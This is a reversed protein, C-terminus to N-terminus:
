VKRFILYACVGSDTRRFAARILRVVVDGGNRKLLRIPPQDFRMGFSRIFAALDDDHILHIMEAHLVSFETRDLEREFTDNVRSINGQEDLMVLLDTELDFFTSGVDGFAELFATVGRRKSM